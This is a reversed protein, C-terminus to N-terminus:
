QSLLAVFANIDDFDVDGDFDCDGNLLNCNPYAAQYAVPDSLALVFPNIDDFDIVGDCNLDGPTPPPPAAYFVVVCPQGSYGLILDPWQDGNLDGFALATGVASSDYSWSPTAALAGNDNLYINTVGNSFNIEALDPDGDRDIDFFKLDQQGFYTAQSQWVLGLTGAANHYLYTPDHGLALDAWGDGDVDGWAVGKDTDSFGTTWVPTGTLTGANNQYVGSQFGNTWKSVALDEWGDGNLDGFAVASTIEPVASYWAPVTGVTGNNNRFLCMKRFPDPSQGQNSTVIDLDGDHDLDCIAADTAWTGGAVQSSWGPVNSPGAPGGWYIVSPSFAFGGNASFIDPYTDHNLDGVEVDNTHVEDASIWSPTAELQTGTNFYILNEWDPYPPYSNSTYCGVVLDLKGDGNLDAVALGSVQRRLTSTWNPTTGYLVDRRRTTVLGDTPSPRVEVTLQGDPSVEIRRDQATAWSGGALAALLAVATGNLKM